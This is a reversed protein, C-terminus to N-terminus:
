YEQPLLITTSACAAETIIWVVAGAKTRYSSSVRFGHKLSYLNEAM